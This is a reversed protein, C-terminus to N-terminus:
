GGELQTLVPSLLENLGGVMVTLARHAAEQPHDDPGDPASPLGDMPLPADVLLTARAHPVKALDQEAPEVFQGFIEPWGQWGRDRWWARTATLAEPLPSVLTVKAVLSGDWTNRVCTASLVRRHWRVFGPSTVPPTAVRWAACAFTVPAIDGWTEEFEGINAAVREAYRGGGGQGLERDRRTDLWFAQQTSM